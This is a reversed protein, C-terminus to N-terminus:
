SLQTDFVLLSGMCPACSQTNLTLCPCCSDCSSSLIREEEM